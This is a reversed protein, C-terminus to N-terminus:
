WRRWVWGGNVKWDGRYASNSGRMSLFMCDWTYPKGGVSLSPNIISMPSLADVPLWILNFPTPGCIMSKLPLKSASPTFNEYSVDL